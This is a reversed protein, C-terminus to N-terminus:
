MEGLAGSIVRKLDFAVSVASSAKRPDKVADSIMGVDHDRETTRIIQKGRTLVGAARSKPAAIERASKKINLGSEEHDEVALTGGPVDSASSVAARIPGTIDTLSGLAGNKTRQNELEAVFESRVRAIRESLLVSLSERTATM